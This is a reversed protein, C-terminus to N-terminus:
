GSANNRSATISSPSIRTVFSGARAHADVLNPRRSRRFQERSRYAKLLCEQTLTEAADRDRLSALILRVVADFDALSRGAPEAMLEGARNEPVTEM